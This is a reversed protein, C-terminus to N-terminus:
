VEGPSPWPRLALGLAAATVLIATAFIVIVGPPGSRSGGAAGDFGGLFIVVGLAAVAGIIHLGITWSRGFGARRYLAAVSFAAVPVAMVCGFFLPVFLAQPM